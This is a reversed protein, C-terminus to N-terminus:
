LWGFFTRRKMGYHTCRGPTARSAHEEEPEEDAEIEAAGDHRVYDDALPDGTARRGQELLDAQRKEPRERKPGGLLGLIRSREIRAARRAVRAPRIMKHLIRRPGM